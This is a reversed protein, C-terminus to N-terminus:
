LRWAWHLLRLGAAELFRKVARIREIASKQLLIPM